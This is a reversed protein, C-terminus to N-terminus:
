KEARAFFGRVDPQVHAERFAEALLEDLHRCLRESPQEQFLESRQIREQEAHSRHPFNEHRENPNM